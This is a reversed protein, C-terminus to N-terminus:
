FTIRAGANFSRTHPAGGINMELVEREKSITLLNYGSLYVDMGKIVSTETFLHEPLKYSLQVRTLDIRDNKYLWYDSNRFNNDSSQTTLRPFSGQQVVQYDLRDTGTGVKEIITRDRVVASYKRDGYVHYYTSNKMGQGGSQGSAQAFFTFNKWRATLNIGYYFPSTSRGLWVEDKADIVNDGNQDVYRIDGPIPSWTQTAHNEIEARNQFIGDSVLGWHSNLSRGIRTQYDYEINESRKVAEPVFYAGVVGLDFDVEGIQKHFSAGFDFGTYLNSDHNINSILNTNNSTFFGPSNNADTIVLGDMNMHFWSANLRIMRDFLSAELGASIEKRQIFSLNPNGGRTMNTQDAQRGEQWQFNGNGRGWIAQYLYYGDIDMDTNLVGGTVTLMLDDVVRSDALFNERSLRWGLTVTPSVAARNGEPLKASQVANGAFDVYYKHRYNYSALFGLNANSIRHYAGSETRQYGHALLIASVNHDGFSRRYDFQASLFINQYQFTNSVTRGRSVGNLNFQTLSAIRDEGAYDYWTPQYIAYTNNNIQQNFRSYYDVGFQTNFTLGKLVFNLDFNVTADFQFQRAAYKDPGQTYLDAFPNTTQEQTGGLLYKGDIVFPNNRVMDQSAGDTQELYSIPILPTYRNPRMTAANGWYDGRATRTNYFVLSTNIKSTIFKNLKVDINGRVHFRNAGDNAGEGVKLLTNNNYFGMNAYYRARENGGTFELTADTRTSMKRMYDSSYYDVSPYRYPNIGSAYNYIMEDSYPLELGDNARAENYLSMYEGSGLYEPFVKPLSISTNARVEFRGKQHDGRKTTVLLIGKAGRSGYLAVAAAGKLLTIQEIESSMVNGLDRPVGDVLTVLGGLGWVAGTGYGPMMETLNDGGGFFNVKELQEPINLYSVGGTLDEPAIARFAVNVLESNSVLTVAAAQTSELEQTQYGLASVTLLSGSPVRLSFLGQQDAAAISGDVGRVQAGSIPRGQSDVVTGSVEALPVSQANAHGASFLLLLCLLTIIQIHKM